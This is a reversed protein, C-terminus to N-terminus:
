HPAMVALPPCSVGGSPPLPGSYVSVQDPSCAARGTGTARPTRWMGRQKRQSNMAARVFTMVPVGAIEMPYQFSLFLITSKWM